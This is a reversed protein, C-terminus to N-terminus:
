QTDYLRVTLNSEGWADSGFQRVRVVLELWIGCYLHSLGSPVPFIVLTGASTKTATTYANAVTTDPNAYMVPQKGIAAPKCGAYGLSEGQLKVFAESVGPLTVRTALFVHFGGQPGHVMPLWQDDVYPVFAGTTPDHTGLEVKLSPKAITEGAKFFSPPGLTCASFDPQPVDAVSADPGPPANVFCTQPGADDETSDALAADGADEVDVDLATDLDDSVDGDTSGDTASADGSLDVGDTADQAADLTAALEADDGADTWGEADSVDSADSVESVDSAAADAVAGGADGAAYPENACGGLILVLCFGTFVSDLWRTARRLGDSTM